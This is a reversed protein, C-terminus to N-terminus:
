VTFRSLLRKADAFDAVVDAATRQQRVMGVAQGTYICATDFDGERRAADLMAYADDDSALEEERGM